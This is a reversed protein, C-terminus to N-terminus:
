FILFVIDTFCVILGFYFHVLPGKPGPNSVRSRTILLHKGCFIFGMSWCKLWSSKKM